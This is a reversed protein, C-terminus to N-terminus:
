KEEKNSYKTYDTPNIFGVSGEPMNNWLHEVIEELTNCPINFEFCTEKVSDPKRKMADKILNRVMDKTIAKGM